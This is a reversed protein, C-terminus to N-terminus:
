TIIINILINKNYNNHNVCESVGHCYLKVTDLFVGNNLSTIPALRFSGWMLGTCTCWM